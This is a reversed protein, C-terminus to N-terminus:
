LHGHFNLKWTIAEDQNLYAREPAPLKVNKIHPPLIKKEYITLSFKRYPLLFDLPCSGETESTGRVQWSHINM